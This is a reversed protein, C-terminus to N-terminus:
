RVSIGLRRREHGNYRLVMLAKAPNANAQRKVLDGPEGRDNCERATTRRGIETKARTIDDDADVLIVGVRQGRVFDVERQMALRARANLERNLAVVIRMVDDACDFTPNKVGVLFLDRLRGATFNAFRRNGLTEKLKWRGM